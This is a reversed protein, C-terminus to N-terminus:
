RNVIIQSHNICLMSHVEFTAKIDLIEAQLAIAELLKDIGDGKLASIPVFQVDGGDADCQIGQGLLGSFPFVILFPHENGIPSGM